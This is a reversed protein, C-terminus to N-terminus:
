KGDLMAITATAPPENAMGAAVREAAEMVRLINGGALKAIMADTWGRRMLEALLAPNTDVGDLGEPLDGGTGDLDGGLGVHDIGAVKVIWEIHDAVQSLTVVPRPHQREWEAMAAKARDPQGIYLGGYPPSYYRGREANRDADWRRRAESVYGPAYNVMVVGGNAAVLKLVKDSVNRPSDDVGRASSHSFIVPAKSVRIADIMTDESVHSLDVLMGLRNLERVVAEGFKTLGGHKPDDTASDAWEITKSHTLTLYSAGLARYARLVAFSGDIQGGGEVGFMSAIKGQAHIRRVDAATTAQAFVNPYRRFIEKMLAIQDLTEKVQEPGPLSASVYVSWFQGGVRGARLRTIDTNFQSPDLKTLDMTWRADGAKEALTEAWDNHGDILPTKALVAAVRSQYASVKDEPAASVFLPAALLLAFAYRM